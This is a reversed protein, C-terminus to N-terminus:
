EGTLQIRNRELEMKKYLEENRPDALHKRYAEIYEPHDRYQVEVVSLESILLLFIGIVGIIGVRWFTFKRNSNPNNMSLVISVVSVIGSVILGIWLMNDAGPINFLKFLSGIIITSLGMGTVVSLVIQVATVNQYADRKFIHRLRIQNFLLFGLFYYLGALVLM